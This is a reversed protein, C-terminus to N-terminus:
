FYFTNCNSIQFYKVNFHVRYFICTDVFNPLVVPISHKKAFNIKLSDRNHDYTLCYDINDSFNVVGTVPNGGYREIKRTLKSNKRNENKKFVSSFIFTKNKFFNVSTQKM